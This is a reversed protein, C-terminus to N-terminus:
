RYKACLVPEKWVSAVQRFMREMYGIHVPIPQKPSCGAVLGIWLVLGLLRM